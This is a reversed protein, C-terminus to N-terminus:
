HSAVVQQETMETPPLQPQWLQYYHAQKKMLQFHSGEEVVQGEKMLIIKHANVITSLRHAIVIVTKGLSQFTHLARQIHNESSTDLSSTAEDLILIEPRRYLARAIAIRQRQGGSLATGNEGIYTNFGNPLKEIFPLMGLSSCIEMIYNIDPTLDGIAINDILNGAFLDIQQPVVSVIQRLSELKVYKIDLGGILISGSQIDYIRQLLSLLTTKGSGSEGVIATVKGKEIHLNLKEFVQTRSGYRFSVEKFHIDGISEKNLWAKQDNDEHHLDMVEFLRDAAILADQMTRNMDILSKVPGTFYGILAYFSLLEGPTLAGNLVFSAGAWLLIITFLSSVFQNTNGIWLMNVSSQYVNQLLHIFRSETKLNAFQELGFRKITGISNISEVLQTELDASREMMTRQTKQNLKNSIFYILSYIPIVLAMIIALKWYYTFMLGFSFIIIFINVAINVLVDNIFTRIKVADNIRSIIEGVRMNDFFQQPLQLLHKYYGLILRADIQQGSQLTFITKSHNIFFQLLLIVIMILGLLNLLNQNGDPLVQDILKQVFIATSLGLITYIVSGFLVQTFVSRHPKLLFAFRRFVSIRENGTRFNENPALLILVGTWQEKFTELPVKHMKGDAPDMLQVYQKSLKYLVVYHHLGNKFVIHAIAPLPIKALSDLTGKVGKASFGLQQAASIMGLINTGKQDTSAFARIKAIPMKLNYFGSVSVLCAAGCDTIDHQKIKIKGM